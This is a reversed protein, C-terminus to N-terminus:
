RHNRCHESQSPHHFRAAEPNDGQRIQLKLAMLGRKGARRDSGIAREPAERLFCIGLLLASTGSLCPYGRHGRRDVRGNLFGASVLSKKSFCVMFSFDRRIIGGRDHDRIRWTMQNFDIGSGGGFIVNM